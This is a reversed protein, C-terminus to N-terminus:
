GWVKHKKYVVVCFSVYSPILLVAYWVVTLLLSLGIWVGGIILYVAILYTYYILAFLLYCVIFCFKLCCIEEMRFRIKKTDFTLIKMINSKQILMFVGTLAGPLIFILFLIPWLIFLSILICVRGCSSRQSTFSTQGIIECILGGGQSSHFFSDVALGCMWCWKYKCMPCEMHM